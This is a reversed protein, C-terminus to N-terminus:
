QKLYFAVKVLDLSISNFIAYVTETFVKSQKVALISGSKQIDRIRQLNLLKFNCLATFCCRAAAVALNRSSTTTTCRIDM